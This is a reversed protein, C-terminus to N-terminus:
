EGNSVEKQRDLRKLAVWSSARHRDLHNRAGDSDAVVGLSRIRQVERHGDAIVRVGVRELRFVVREGGKKEGFNLNSHGGLGKLSGLFLAKM